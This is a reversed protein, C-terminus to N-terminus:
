AFCGQRTEATEGRRDSWSCAAVEEPSEPPQPAVVDAISEVPPPAQFPPADVAAAAVWLSGASPPASEVTDLPPPQAAATPPLAGVEEGPGFM